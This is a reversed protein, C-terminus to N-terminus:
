KLGTVRHITEDGVGGGLETRPSQPKGLSFTVM